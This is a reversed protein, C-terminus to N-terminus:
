FIFPFMAKRNKPYKDGFEKLYRRHKEKAWIAMQVTSFVTFIYATYNGALISFTLWRSGGLLLQCM